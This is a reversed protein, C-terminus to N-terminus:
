IASESAAPLTLTRMALGQARTHARTHTHAALIASGRAGDLRAIRQRQMTDVRVGTTETVKADNPLLFCRGLEGLGNRLRVIAAARANVVVVM